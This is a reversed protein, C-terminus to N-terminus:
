RPANGQLHSVGTAQSPGAKMFLELLERGLPLDGGTRACGWFRAACRALPELPAAGVVPRRLPLGVADQHLVRMVRAWAVGWPLRAVGRPGQAEEACEQRVGRRPVWNCPARTRRECAAWRRV